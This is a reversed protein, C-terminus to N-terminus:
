QEDDTLGAGKKGIDFWGYGANVGHGLMLGNEELDEILFKLLKIESDLTLSM